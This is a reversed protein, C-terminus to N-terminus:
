EHDHGEHDHGEHDHGEEASHDHDHVAWVARTDCLILQDIVSNTKKPNSPDTCHGIAEFDDWDEPVDFM